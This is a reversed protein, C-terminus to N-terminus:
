PWENALDGYTAYARDRTQTWRVSEQANGERRYLGALYEAVQGRLLLTDGGGACHYDTAELRAYEQQFYELEWQTANPLARALQAIAEYALTSPQVRAAALFAELTESAPIQVCRSTMAMAQSLKATAEDPYKLEGAIARRIVDATPPYGWDAAVVDRVTYGKADVYIYGWTAGPRELLYWLL